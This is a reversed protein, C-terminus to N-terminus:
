TTIHFPGLGPGSCSYGIRYCLVSRGRVSSAAAPITLCIVKTGDRKVVPGTPQAPPAERLDYIWRFSVLAM